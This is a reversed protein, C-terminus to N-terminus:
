KMTPHVIEKLVLYEGTNIDQAIILEINKNKFSRIEVVRGILDELKFTKTKSM